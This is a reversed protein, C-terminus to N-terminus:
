SGTTVVGCVGEGKLSRGGGVFGENRHGLCRHNDQGEIEIRCHVFCETLSRSFGIQNIPLYNEFMRYKDSHLM